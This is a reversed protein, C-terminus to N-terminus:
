LPVIPPRISFFNAQLLRSRPIGVGIGTNSAAVAHTERDLEIGWISDSPEGGLGRIRRAAADLFVGGGFSPDLVRDDRKRIAWDSLFEAVVRPTYFAGLVKRTEAHALARVM